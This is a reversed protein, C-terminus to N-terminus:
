KGTFLEFGTMKQIEGAEGGQIEAGSIKHAIELPVESIRVGLNGKRCITEKDGATCKVKLAKAYFDAVSKPSDPVGFRVLYDNKHTYHYRTNHDDHTYPAGRGPVSNPPLPMGLKASDLANFCQTSVYHSPKREMKAKGAGEEDMQKEDEVLKLNKDLEFFSQGVPKSAPNKLEWTM